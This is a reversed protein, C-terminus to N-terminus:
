HHHPAEAADPPPSDGGLSVFPMFSHILFLSLAKANSSPFNPTFAASARGPIMPPLILQIRLLAASTTPQTDCFRHARTTPIPPNIYVYM